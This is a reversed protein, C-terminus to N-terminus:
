ARISRPQNKWLVAVLTLLLFSGAPHRFIGLSAYDGLFQQISGLYIVVVWFGFGDGIATKVISTLENEFITRDSTLLYLSAIWFPPIESLYWGIQALAVWWVLYAATLFGKPFLHRIFYFLALTAWYGVCVMTGIQFAEKLHLTSLLVPIVAITVRQLPAQIPKM